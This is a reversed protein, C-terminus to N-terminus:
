SASRATARAKSMSSRFRAVTSDHDVLRPPYGAPVLLGAKWPEHVLSGDIASLEPVFRRVYDGDPDFRQAQRTPSLVRNPRTDAGTGAAWQWNGVNCAIDGDVLHRAFHHAGHRWDVSLHKTLFSAVVLRARNPMTGEALLQRMAADVLPFGTEGAQWAALADPDECWVRRRSRMDEHALRPRSALLQHYFDRWCLQRVFAEAGPLGAARQVVESASLCGLHIYPSLHSTAGLAVSDRQTDYRSLGDALWQALRERGVAEGGAPLGRVAPARTLESLDPISGARVGHTPLAAPAPLTARRPTARWRNWYPTFVLFAEGGGTPTIDGPPVVTAGPGIVVEIREGAAARRLRLERRAAYGSVDEALFVADAGFETAVRMTEDVVDGRRVVLRSGRERLSADLDRLCDLLFAVRNPAVGVGLITEDLVFLPVVSEALELAGALAVNDHVRLDRTFLVVARV